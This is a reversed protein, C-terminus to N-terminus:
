VPNAVRTIDHFHFHFHFHSHFRMPTDTDRLPLRLVFSRALRQPTYGEFVDAVVVDIKLNSVGSTAPCTTRFYDSNPVISMMDTKVM